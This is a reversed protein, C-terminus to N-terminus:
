LQAVYNILRTVVLENIANKTAYIVDLNHMSIFSIGSLYSLFYTNKIIAIQM